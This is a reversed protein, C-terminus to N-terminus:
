TYAYFSVFLVLGAMCRSTKTATIVFRGRARSASLDFFPCCAALLRLLVAIVIEYALACLLGQRLVAHGLYARLALSRSWWM